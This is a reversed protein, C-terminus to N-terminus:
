TNIYVFMGSCGVPHGLAIAGGHINVKDPNIKLEKLVALTQSAFAENFEYLDIDEKTWGAKAM